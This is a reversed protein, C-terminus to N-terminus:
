ALRVPGGPADAYQMLGALKGGLVDLRFAEECPDDFFLYSNLEM